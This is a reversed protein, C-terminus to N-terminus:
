SREEGREEKQFILAFRASDRQSMRPLCICYMLWRTPRILRAAPAALVATRSAPHPSVLTPPWAPPWAVPGATVIVWASTGKARSATVAPRADQRCEASKHSAGCPRSLVDPDDLAPVDTLVITADSERTGACTTIGPGGVAGPAARKRRAPQRAVIYDDRSAM